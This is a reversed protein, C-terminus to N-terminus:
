INNKIFYINIKTTKASTISAAFKLSVSFWGYVSIYPTGQKGLDFKDPYASVCAYVALFDNSTINPAIILSKWIVHIFM